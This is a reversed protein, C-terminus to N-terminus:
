EDKVALAPDIRMAQWAPLAVSVIIGVAVVACAAAELWIMTGVSPLNEEEVRRGYLWGIATILPIAFLLLTMGEGIVRRFIDGRTAGCVRRIAIESVRQQMRFWFTGLLGLGVVILIFCIVATNLRVEKASDREIAVGLDDLSSFNYLFINRRAQMDPSTEFERRFAAGHGPKVRIMIEWVNSLDLNEDIPKIISGGYQYDYRSRRVLQVIDAVRVTNTTDGGVHAIRGNVAEPSLIEVYDDDEEDCLLSSILMEGSALHQELFGSDKGTTSRLRLVRVAEPSIERLNGYYPLTDGKPWLHNGIYSGNYPIGNMGLAAVEVHESHRMRALLSRIDINNQEMGDLDTAVYDPSNQSVKGVRVTYVDESDFGLPIFYYRMTYYIEVSFFWVALGVVTIAMVLWINDRWENGMQALLSRKM